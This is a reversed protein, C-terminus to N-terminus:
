GRRILPRLLSELGNVQIECIAALQEGLTGAPFGKQKFWLVYNEPLDVLYRGAYRGFPMKTNALVVLEGTDAVKRYVASPHFDPVDERRSM